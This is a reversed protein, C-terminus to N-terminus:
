GLRRFLWSTKSAMWHVTRNKGKYISGYDNLDTKFSSLDVHQGSINLTRPFYKWSKGLCCVLSLFTVSNESIVFRTDFDNFYPYWRRILCWEIEQGAIFLFAKIKIRAYVLETKKAVYTSSRWGQNTNSLTSHDRRRRNKMMWVLVLPWRPWSRCLSGFFHSYPFLILLIHSLSFPM